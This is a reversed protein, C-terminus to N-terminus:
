QHKCFSLLCHLYPYCTKVPWVHPSTQHASGKRRSYIWVPAMALLVAQICDCIICATLLHQPKRHTSCAELCSSVAPCVGRVQSGQRNSQSGHTEDGRFAAPLGECPCILLMCLDCTMTLARNACVATTCCSVLLAWVAAISEGM